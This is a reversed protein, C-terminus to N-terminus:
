DMTFLNILSWSRELSFINIALSIILLISLLDYLIITIFVLEPVKEITEDTLFKATLDDVAEKSVLLSNLQNCKEKAKDYTLKSENFASHYFCRKTKTTMRFPTPCHDLKFTHTRFHNLNIKLM